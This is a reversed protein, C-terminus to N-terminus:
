VAEKNQKSIFEVLEEFCDTNVGEKRLYALVRKPEVELKSSLEALAQFVKQPISLIHRMPVETGAFKISSEDSVGYLFIAEDVASNASSSKSPANKLEALAQETSIMRSAKILATVSAINSLTIQALRIRFELEKTPIKM